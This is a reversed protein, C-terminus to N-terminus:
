GKKGRAAALKNQDSLAQAETYRNFFQRRLPWTTPRPVTATEVAFKGDYMARTGDRLARALWGAGGVRDAASGAASACGVLAAGRAHLPSLAWRAWRMNARRARGASVSRDAPAGTRCGAAPEIRGSDATGGTVTRQCVVSEGAAAAADLADLQGRTDFWTLTANMWDATIEHMAWAVNLVQVLSLTLTPYTALSSCL